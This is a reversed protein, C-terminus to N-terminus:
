LKEILGIIKKSVKMYDHKDMVWERGKKGILILADPNKLVRVLVDEINDQNANIFPYDPIYKEYEPNMYTISPIGMSLCEM